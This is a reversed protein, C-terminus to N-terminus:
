GNRAWGGGWKGHAFYPHYYHGSLHAPILILLYNVYHKACLMVGQLCESHYCLWYDLLRLSLIWVFPIISLCYIKMSWLCSVWGSNHKWHAIKGWASGIGLDRIEIKFKGRIFISLININVKHMHSGQNKLINTM